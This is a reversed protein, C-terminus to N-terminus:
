TTSKILNILQIRNKVQTKKFCSYLHSEVTKKSIFLKESIEVNSHGLLMQKIVDVERVSINYKDCFYKTINNEKLYAPQGLLKSVFMLSICGVFISYLAVHPSHSIQMFINLYIDLVLHVFSVVLFFVFHRKLLVNGIKNFLIVWLALCYLIIGYMIVLNMINWLLQFVEIDFMKVSFLIIFISLILIFFIVEIKRFSKVLAKYTFAPLSGIILLCGLNDCLQFFLYTFNSNGIYYMETYFHKVFYAILTLLIGTLFLSFFLIQSRKYRIYFVFSIIIVSSNIIIAIINLWFILHNM